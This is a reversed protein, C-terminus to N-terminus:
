ETAPHKVDYASNGNCHSRRCIVITCCKLIIAKIEHYVKISICSSEHKNTKIFYLLLISHLEIEKLYIQLTWQM